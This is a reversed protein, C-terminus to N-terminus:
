SDRGLLEDLERCKLLKAAAFYALLGFVLGVGLRIGSQAVAMGVLREALILGGYAAGAELATALIIKPLSRAVGALAEKGGETGLQESKSLIGIKKRLLYTLIMLNLAACIATSLALGGTGLPWILILNLPINLAVLGVGVKVPTMTDQLAYFGRVVVQVGCYAWIGTCYFILTRSVRGVAEADFKGSGMGIIASLGGGLIFEVAERSLIILGVTAGIGIFAVLRLGKVLTKVLGAHDKRAACATFYPFIATALAIGFVGLPVNYLRQSFYLVAVAEDGLLWWALLYDLLANIQLVGLGLMMPGTLRVIRRIQEMQPRWLWGLSVGQRKLPVLVLILQAVGGVLVGGALAFVKRSDEGGLLGTGWIAAVILVVNLLVPALAPCSFHYRANLMGGVLAVVCIIMAYPLVIAALLLTLGTGEEKGLAFGLIGIVCEGVVVIGALTVVLLWLTARGVREALEKDDSRIAESYVPIFAASLAGEGFLRRLLNPIMFAMAWSGMVEKAGFVHGFASERVVALVRSLFTAASIIKAKGIFGGPTKEGSNMRWDYWCDGRGALARSERWERLM